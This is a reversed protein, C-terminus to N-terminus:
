LRMAFSNMLQLCLEREQCYKVISANKAEGALMLPFTVAGTKRCFYTGDFQQKRVQSILDVLKALIEGFCCNKEAFNLAM